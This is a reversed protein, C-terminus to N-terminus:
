YSIGNVLPHVSDLARIDGCMERDAFDLLAKQHQIYFSLVKKDADPAMHFIQESWRLSREVEAKFCPLLESWPIKAMINGERSGKDQLLLTKDIYTDLKEVLPRLRNGTEQELLALTTLKSSMEHNDLAMAM